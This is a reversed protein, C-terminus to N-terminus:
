VFADAGDVPLAMDLMCLPWRVMRASLYADMTMPDRIAAGPTRAANARDNLAIRGFTERSAKRHDHLCGSAWVSYGGPGAMSEPKPAAAAMMGLVAPSLRRFPDDAASRSNFPSRYVSHYALVTDCTGSYIANMAALVQAVFPIDPHAFWTVEPIGLASQVYAPHPQSACIGDVDDPGLGADRLAAICAQLALAAASMEGGERRFGTTGIGAFAIADKIPNRSTVM